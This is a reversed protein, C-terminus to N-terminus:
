LQNGDKDIKIVYIDKDVRSFSRTYGTILYNGDMETIAYGEEDEAGGYTKTWLTNGAKDLKIALIEKDKKLDDTYGVVIYGDETEIVDRAEEDERTGILRRFVEKGQANVKAIYVDKAKRYASETTGAFLFGGDRTAIAKSLFEDDSFGYAQHWLVKGKKNIRIFYVDFDGHGYSDTEGAILYGDDLAILGKARDEDEGGYLHQWKKNGFSDVAIVYINVDSDFFKVHDESGAILIHSDNISAMGGAGYRDDDDLFYEQEWRKKMSKDLNIVYISEQAGGSSKTTGLIRYGDKTKIVDSLTENMRGGFLQSGIKKGSKDFRLLYIDMMGKGFSETLGVVAFGDDTKIIKQAIDNRSGGFTLEFHRQNKEKKDFVKKQTWGKLTIMHNSYRVKCWEKECEITQLDDNLNVQAIVDSELSNSQYINVAFLSSALLSSAVMSVWFKKM